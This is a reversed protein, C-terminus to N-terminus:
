WRTGSPPSSHTIPSGLGSSPLVCLSASFLGSGSFSQMVAYGFGNLAEHISLEGSLVVTSIGRAQAIRVARVGDGAGVDLLSEARPPIHQVVLRDVAEIYAAKAMSYQRYQSALADYM